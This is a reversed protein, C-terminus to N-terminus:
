ANDQAGGKLKKQKGLDDQNLYNELVIIENMDPDPTMGVWDRLENRRMAALHVMQSGASVLETISYSYLSRPNLKFYWEDKLLLDRTLTQSIILAISMVKTSIWNNYEEKNFSGVGLFFAPVGILGAVTKKDIEVSENIAIDKLTLPKIQNIELMEAPIIWPQGTASTKVYKNYIRLRGEESALEANHADVKIILSPMNQHLFGRKTLTAQNLNKVIDQIALRYSTGVFPVEPKPNLVFHIVEDPNYVTDSVHIKYSDETIEFSVNKTPMPTLNAILDKQPDYEIHVISNGDGDLLLDKVIKYIWMKRTMHQCPEIDIKRSLANYVRKDGNETNELLQITMNSVVDAIKDVAILIDPNKNLPIYTHDALLEDFQEKNDIIGVQTKKNRKFLNFVGM